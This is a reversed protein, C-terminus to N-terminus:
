YVISEALARGARIRAYGLPSLDLSTYRGHVIHEAVGRGAAPAHMVGHGSFGTCLVLNPIADHPGVVGNHDLANVEYHGAWARDLRLREMATIRSALAPWFLDELLAHDPEFDGTADPDRDPPPQIGGIFGEGEPRVWVGSTDFLMPFDPAHLPARFSFVTRKRPSVPLPEGLTAMLRGSAAGAALVCWDCPISTGDALRLAAIRGARLEFASVDGTVYRAGQGKAARQVLTLLSWADFWGEGSRGFTGIGIGTLDLWPFRAALDAPTLAEIDAGEALQMAVAAERAAAAEPPALILYGKERYGIDADPGFHDSIQRFLRAAHLSMGINVPTGFQTRIAAASLATSSFRYSPDREVVTIQGAFGEQRLSWGAFSGMIGGGVIVVRARDTV